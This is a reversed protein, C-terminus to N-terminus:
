SVADRDDDELLADIRNLQFSSQSSGGNMEAYIDSSTPSLHQLSMKFEKLLRPFDEMTIFLDQRSIVLLRCETAARASIVSPGDGFRATRLQQHFPKSPDCKMAASKMAYLNLIAGTSADWRVGEEDDSESEGDSDAGASWFGVQNASAKRSHAGSSSSSSSSKGRSGSAVSGEQVHSHTAEKNSCSLEMIGSQIVYIFHMGRMEGEHLVYLGVPLVRVSARALLATVFATDHPLIPSPKVNRLWWQILLENKLHDPMSNQLDYDTFKGLQSKWAQSFVTVMRRALWEPIKEREIYLTLMRDRLQDHKRSRNYLLSTITGIVYGLVLAGLFIQITVYVREVLLNSASIDGYGVSAFTVVAFYLAMIYQRVLDADIVAVENGDAAIVTYKEVWRDSHSENRGLLFFLCATVHCFLITWFLVLLMDTIDRIVESSLGSTVHGRFFRVMRLMKFVRFLMFVRLFRLLDFWSATQYKALYFWNTPLAALIDPVLWTRIYHRAIKRGNMIKRHGFWSKSAHFYGTRFNLLVDVLLWTDIVLQVVLFGGSPSVNFCFRIPLDFCSYVIFTTVVAMEALHFRSIPDIVPIPCWGKNKKKPNPPVITHDARGYRLNHSVHKFAKLVSRRRSPKDIAPMSSISTKRRSWVGTVARLLKSSKRPSEEGGRSVGNGQVLHGTSFDELITDMQATSLKPTGSQVGNVPLGPMMVGDLTYDWRRRVRYARYAAQIKIAQQEKFKLSYQREISSSKAKREAAAALELTIEEPHGPPTVILRSNDEPAIDEAAISHLERVGGGACGFDGTRRNQWSAKAELM